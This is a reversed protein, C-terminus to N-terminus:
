ARWTRGGANATKALSECHRDAGELGGLDAGKGSGVSTVFFTMEKGVSMQSQLTSCGALTWLGSAALLASQIVRHM